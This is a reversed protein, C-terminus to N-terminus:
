ELSHDLWEDVDCARVAGFRRVSVTIGAYHQTGANAPLVEFINVTCWDTPTVEGVDLVAMGRRCGIRDSPIHAEGLISLTIGQETMLSVGVVKGFTWELLNLNIPGIAPSEKSLINRNGM